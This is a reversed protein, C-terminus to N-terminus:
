GLLHVDGALVRRVSGDELRVLLAGDEAVDQAVGEWAGDRTAVRVARGLSNPWKKWAALVGASRGSSLEDYRAELREFLRQLLSTRAVPQGLERLLSTASARLTADFTDEGVNANLGVGLVLHSLGVEVSTIDVLLGSLKRNGILLDNPWKLTPKLQSVEAVAEACALGAALALLQMRSWRRPVFSLRAGSAALRHFSPAVKGGEVAARSRLWFLPVM